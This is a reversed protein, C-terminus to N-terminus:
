KKATKDAEPSRLHTLLVDINGGGRQIVSAFDSRQTMSMSVGEVIIDVVKFKGDKNRVRWDVRVKPESKPVIHSTVLTDKDGEPRADGVILQQGNYDSFRRSYVEVIMEEFLKLYEKQQDKSSTKWYRGLAFRGITKMDFNDHLLDRFEKERAVESLGENTLFGIGRKALSDVFSKAGAAVEGEAKIFVASSQQPVSPAANMALSLGSVSLGAGLALTFVLKKSIM